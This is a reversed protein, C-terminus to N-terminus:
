TRKIKKFIISGITSAGDQPTASNILFFTDTGKSYPRTFQSGTNRENPYPFSKFRMWCWESVNGAVWTGISDYLFPVKKNMVFSSDASFTIFLDKYFNSDKKYTGLDTQEIDLKYTGLQQNFTAIRGDQDGCSYCELLFCCILVINRFQVM